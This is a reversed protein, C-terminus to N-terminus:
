LALGMQPVAAAEIETWKWPQFGGAGPGFVCLMLDKPYPDKHGVFTLRPRLPLVRAHGFVNEAFWNTSVSAPILMAIRVGLLSETRAKAVFKGISDYPPNLWCLGDRPWPQVIADTGLESGPGFWQPCVHNSADAALDFVLRGFKREVADLFARPTGVEQVSDGSIRAGSM